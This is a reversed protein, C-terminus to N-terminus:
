RHAARRRGGAGQREIEAPSRKAMELAFSLNQYVTMHPYLAYIQFVMALGRDKPDADTIDRDGVFVTGEDVEELGAILRLLTSKGCGSPGVVVSFEGDAFELDVGKVVETSGFRKHLGRLTVGAM